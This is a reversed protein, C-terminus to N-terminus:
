DIKKFYILGQIKYIQVFVIEDSPILRKGGPAKGGPAGGGGGLLTGVRDNGVRSM